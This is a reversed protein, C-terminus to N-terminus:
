DKKPIITFGFEMAKAANLRYEARTDPGCSSSGIGRTFGDITLYTTNLNCIDEQHAAKNIASQSTHHVSFNFPADGYVCVSNGDNDKLKLWRTDCHMGNEQPYVYPEYMDDVKSSYVGVPAHAKFDPMNENDGRGFYEAFDFDKDLELTIGFRPIDCVSSENLTRLVTKIEMAGLSTIVYKIFWSYVANRGNKLSYLVDVVIEGDEIGASFHELHKKLKDLGGKAWEDRMKADNDILARYLNPNIGIKEAPSLNLLQKGNVEYSVLDGTAADFVAKGNDFIVTLIGNESEAAIKNGIEIDYEFDSMQLELQETAIECDSTKDVYTFNIHCDAGEPLVIEPLTVTQKMMPEIDIDFKGDCVSIGNVLYNYKVAIYSANRFRNTNTFEFTGDGKYEARVPRYVVRMCKAGTHLRRDSYMLGDVCFHGDHQKEGHDGGYTYKYKYKKDNEDHYVTHDAWEWICGGMSNDWAYFLKWYEELNGPGVGMAHAYECLYFPYKSYEKCVRSTDSYRRIRKEKMMAEIDETSTYMESIVDYHFRKTRVVGEYHVPIQTGTSKLYRYCKDQCKYGGAENGLSWMLISPHNRDRFYMRKVRDVYHKAWKIDHSIYDFNDAMECCGHTEIDAEDIVYLGNLDCLTIFYPDPPYHSTRVGNCNLQKMLKIDREMDELSMSYGKYLDTDHHNVGKVKIPKGNFLFVGNEINITKFGIFHRLCMKEEDNKLVCLYLTYCVPIEPNWETVNLEGFSIEEEGCVQKLAVTNGDKDILEAKVTCNKDEGLVTKIDLTYGNQTKKTVAEFDYIYNEPYNYLLVDRFIGNERFMDQCELFTGNCWKFMVALIENTGETLLSTIDFEATNHSGESYGVFSGNVYLSINNAVGLFSIIHKAAKKEIEFTKRYIGVPMDDPIAPALTKIEYPCNLYVPEQYGTRQWDCPITVTDFKTKTTDLKDPVDNISKYFKFNWEGSLVTTLSSSYREKTYCTNKLAQTNEYAVGYARPALKNKEFVSFNNHLNKIISYKM